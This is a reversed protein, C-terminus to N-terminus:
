QLGQQTLKVANLPAAETSFYISSGGDKTVYNNDIIIGSTGGNAQASTLTSGNALAMVCGNNGFGSCNRTVSWFFFDTGGGINNNFYETVPGCRANGAGSLQVSSGPQLVGSVNFGLLYRYPTTDAAGTGCVLMHGTAASNFYNNDFDGDYLNVNTGAPSGEGVPVRALVAFSSTDVQVVAARNSVSDNSTIAFLTKGTADFIVSDYIAPNQSGTRGIQIPTVPGPTNVNVSYLRGNGAGLFVNGTAPDLVPSTLTSNANITLPWPATTVLTPIGKFVGTIKYLRGNNLGVYATDTTYDVWPSSRGNTSAALATTTMAGLPVATSPNATAHTGSTPIKLVHFVSNLTGPTNSTEVFAVKKGDLSLVPSTLIKGNAITTTNYTFLFNPQAGGCLPNGTASAYLNNLGVISPQGGTAGTVNLAYIVYDTTCNALSVPLTPDSNWKAPFQGFQIRGTGLAVSWDRHPATSSTSAFQSVPSASNLMARAQAFAERYLQTAARPERVALEPHQHLTATNFKIRHHTWDEPVGVQPRLESVQATLGSVLVAVLFAQASRGAVWTPRRFGM